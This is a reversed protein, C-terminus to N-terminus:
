QLHLNIKILHIALKLKAPSLQFFMQRLRFFFFGPIHNEQLFHGSPRYNKVSLIVIHICVAACASNLESSLLFWNRGGPNM